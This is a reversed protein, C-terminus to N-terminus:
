RTERIKRDARKLCKLLEPNFAGCKGDLIMEMAHAHTYDEKYVRKSVLADYVDALAVVQAALPIEDGMLGDPYGSGDYREHHWRCISRAVQAFPRNRYERIGDIIESGIVTHTQMIEYEEPTLKGPKNLIKEDISIKGIDHLTSADAILSIDADSLKYKTSFAALEELLIETLRRIHVVHAGSEANRFEVTQGLISIIMRNNEEKELVKDTIISVLRRQKAYLKINNYVRRRVVKSDFPRQIYDSVGMDYARWVSEESSDGTITIVPIDEVLHRDNMYELVGFGDTGPMIIDLLVLSIERGRERLIRICEEGDRAEILSFDEGLMASLLERNLASDDAILVTPKGKEQSVDPIEGETLVKDKNMKALMLLRDAREVARGITEGECVVGGISASLRINAYGPITVARVRQRVRELMGSLAESGMGPLVLLFEDGGYRMLVDSRRLSGRVVDAFTRLVIDGVTHGYFDNYIKFDDIDMMAVGSPVRAERMQEEYYRRNYVGTLVDAYRDDFFGSARERLRERGEYDTLFSEDMQRLMEMVYPAGDIELYRAMAYYFRKGDSEIKSVDTRETYARLSICHHCPEGKADFFFCDAHKQASASSCKDKLDELQQRNLLRVVSFVKRFAELEALAESMTLKETVNEM